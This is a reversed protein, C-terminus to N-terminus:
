SRITETFNQVKKLFDKYDRFIIDAEPETNNKSTIWANYMGANKSGIIDYKYNNGVYLIESPLLELKDALYSYAQAHPKLKGSDESSIAVDWFGELGFYKLKNGVPFDSMVALKIETQKLEALVNKIGPFPKVRKFIQEWETYFLKNIEKRAAEETINRKEAYLRAQASHLSDSWESDRLVHRVQNMKGIKDSHKLFFPISHLYMQRNPYLTGDIDFAIAKIKM